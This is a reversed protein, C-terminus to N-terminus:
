AAGTLTVSTADIAMVGQDLSDLSAHWAGNAAKSLHLVLHLKAEGAQLTGAYAGEVAPVAKSSQAAAPTTQGASAVGGVPLLAWLVMALWSMRVAFLRM